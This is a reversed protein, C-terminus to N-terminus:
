PLGGFLGHLFGVPFRALLNLWRARM